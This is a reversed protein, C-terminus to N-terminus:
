KRPIKCVNTFNTCTSIKSNIVQLVVPVPISAFLASFDFSVLTEEEPIMSLLMIKTIFDTSDTVFSSTKGCYNQLIKTIFKATNYTATDCVSVIPHMPMNNKHIKTKCFKLLNKTSLQLHTKPSISIFQITKYSPKVNQSTNQKIESDKDNANVLICYTQIKTILKYVVYPMAIDWPSLLSMNYLIGALHM